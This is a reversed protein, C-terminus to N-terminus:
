MRLRRQGMRGVIGDIIGVTIALIKKVKHGEFFLIKLFMKLHGIWEYCIYARERRFYRRSLAVLNRYQYYWRIPLYNVVCVNKWGVKKINSNGIQHAMVATLLNFILFGAHRAKLCFEADVFGIFYEDAFGGIEEVDELLFTMGSSICVPCELFIPSNNMSFLRYLPHRDHVIERPIIGLVIKKGNRSLWGYSEIVVELFDPFIQTDQDFTTTWKFGRDIMYRISYNYASALGINEGDGVVEVNCSTSNTSSLFDPRWGGNNYVLVHKYQRCYEKLRDQLGEDPFYCVVLACGDSVCLSTM